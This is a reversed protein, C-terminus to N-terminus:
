EVIKIQELKKVEIQPNGRFESVKGTVRIKKGNYQKRPDSIRAEKLERTLAKIDLVITLNRESKFDKESNLFIMSKTKNAGTAQVVFEITWEKGLRKKAEAALDTKGETTGKVTGARLRSLPVKHRITVDGDEDHIEMSLLPDERDWDIRIIGFNNGRDMTALRHRNVELARFRKNGMNMGSSTLDHLPYGIEADMVSLEALHRDGSLVIVGSARTDRILQYLRGREAPFNMWKEFGHDQAVVQISSCLLRVEAPVKLQEELWKWQAEGLVTVDPDTNAVYQGLNRPRKKDLKLPSRHYRTDLLIVQVRKGVPGLVQAHYIGEQKRRISDRPVGFFDLFAIQSEKKEPYEAGADNIGYDHDDWAALVPCTALLKKYGPQAGLKAYEQRMEEIRHTDAYINDGLFLFLEPKSKLIPEWITQEREQHMCSGFAIRSLPKDTGADAPQVPVFFAVTLLIFRVFV